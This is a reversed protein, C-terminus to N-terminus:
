GRGVVEGLLIRIWRLWFWTSAIKEGRRGLLLIRQRAFTTAPATQEDTLEATMSNAVTGRRNIAWERGLAGGSSLTPEFSNKKGRNRVDRVVGGIKAAGHTRVGQKGGRLYDNVRQARANYRCRCVLFFIYRTPPRRLYPLNETIRRNRSKM